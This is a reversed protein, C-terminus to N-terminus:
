HGVTREGEPHQSAIAYAANAVIAEYAQARHPQKRQVIILDGGDRRPREVGQVRQGGQLYRARRRLPPGGPTADSARVLRM